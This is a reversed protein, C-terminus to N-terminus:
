ASIRSYEKKFLDIPLPKSFYFGQVVHCGAKQTIYLQEETEIGEMIVDMDHSKVLAVIFPFTKHTKQCINALFSRDIKIGDFPLFNLNGLSSYGTGFDDMLLRFGHKQLRVMIDQALPLNHLAMTETVEIELLTPSVTYEECGKLLIEELKIDFFTRPSLNFSIPIPKHGLKNLIYLCRCCEKIVWTDIATIHGSREAIPIFLGPLIQGRTSNNWRILAEAGVIKLQRADYKPQFFLEMENANLAKLLENKLQKTAIRQSIYPSEVVEYLYQKATMARSCADWALFKLDELSEAQDQISTGVFIRCLSAQAVTSALVSPLNCIERSLDRISQSNLSPELPLLACFENRRLRAFVATGPLLALISHSLHKLIKDGEKYSYLSNIQHLGDIKLTIVAIKLGQEQAKAYLASGVHKFGNWNVLGTLNDFHSLPKQPSYVTPQTYEEFFALCLPKRHVIDIMIFHTTLWMGNKNNFNEVVDYANGRQENYEIAPCSPCPANYGYLLEFCKKSTDGYDKVIHEYRKNKHLIHFNSTDIVCAPLPAQKVIIRLVKDAAEFALVDKKSITHGQSYGFSLTRPGQGTLIWDPNICKKRLMTILWADPISARRKACTIASQSVGLFSALEMQTHCSAAEFIRTLPTQVFSGPSAPGKTM